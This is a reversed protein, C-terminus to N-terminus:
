QHTAPSNRLGMPMVVWEWLRFPTLTAMYKVHDPHVLTQFFSNTMDIKGWVKGRTCDALIDDIQPLLYHDPVTVSNLKQYDNVWRPLVTSDAKPIIFSPSAYPSSSPRIQGAAAHQDILTKWSERYKRLCSYARGVSIPLGLKIEIHHYVDCPLDKAHPIDTPFHDAFSDKFKNNLSRLLRQGALQEIRTHISCVIDPGM